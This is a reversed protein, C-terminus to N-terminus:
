KMMAQRIEALVKTGVGRLFCLNAVGYIEIDGVTLLNNNILTNTARNSLNLEEVLKRNPQKLLKIRGTLWQHVVRCEALNLNELDPTLGNPLRNRKV